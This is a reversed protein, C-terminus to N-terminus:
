QDGGPLADQYGDQYGDLYSSTDGGGADDLFGGGRDVLPIDQLHFEVGLFEADRNFNATVQVPEGWQNVQGTSQTMSWTTGQPSHAGLGLANMDGQFKGARTLMARVHEPEPYAAQPPVDESPIMGLLRIGDLGVVLAWGWGGCLLLWSDAPEGRLWGLIVLAGLGLGPLALLIRAWGQTYLPTYDGIRKRPRGKGDVLRNRRDYPIHEM